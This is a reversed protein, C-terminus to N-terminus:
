RVYRCQARPVWRSALCLPQHGAFVYFAGTPTPCNVGEIDNLATVIACRRADFAKRMEHVEDLPGAVAALAARQSINAVNSTMHGQLKAAAKAVELPAVMWGVRWGPMAYTKAVGNLVLLQGRCEPVAAGIYTTHADDYNLHEYIEDSIVWIHHEVAWRGIAEM